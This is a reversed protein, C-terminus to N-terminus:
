VLPVDFEDSYFRLMMRGYEHLSEEYRVKAAPDKLVTAGWFDDFEADTMRKNWVRSCLRDGVMNSIWWMVEMAPDQQGAPVPDPPKPLIEPWEFTNLLCYWGALTHDDQAILVRKQADTIM